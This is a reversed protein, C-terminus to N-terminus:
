IDSFIGLFGRFAVLNIRPMIKVTGEFAVHLFGYKFWNGYRPRCAFVVFHKAKFVDTQCDTERENLLAKISYTNRHRHYPM